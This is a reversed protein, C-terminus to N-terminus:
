FLDPLFIQIKHYFIELGFIIAFAIVLKGITQSIIKFDKVQTYKYISIVILIITAILMIVFFITRWMEINHFILNPNGDFIFHRNFIISLNKMFFITAVGLLFGCLGYLSKIKEYIKNM